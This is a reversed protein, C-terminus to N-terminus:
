LIPITSVSIANEAMNKHWELISVFLKQMVSTFIDTQNPLSGPIFRGNNKGDKLDEVIFQEIFSVSPKSEEKEKINEESMRYSKLIVFIPHIQSM